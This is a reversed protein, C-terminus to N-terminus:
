AAIARLALGIAIPARAPHKQGDYDAAPLKLGSLQFPNVLEVDLALQSGLLDTVHPCEAYIGSLLVRAIGTELGVTDTYQLTRRIERVLNAVVDMLEEPPEADDGPEDHDEHFIPTTETRDLAVMGLTADRVFLFEGGKLATMILRSPDGHVWLVAEDTLEGDHHACRYVHSLALGDIDVIVPEFGVAKLLAVREEVVDKKAAALLVSVSGTGLSDHAQGQIHADWYVDEPTYPIYRDMEWALHAMLEEASMSPISVTKVCVGPGSISVAVRRHLLHHRHVMERLAERIRCDDASPIAETAVPRDLWTRVVSPYRRDLEVLTIAHPAIDLGLGCRSLSHCM